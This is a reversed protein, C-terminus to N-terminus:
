KGFATKDYDEPCYGYYNCCDNACTLYACQTVEGM